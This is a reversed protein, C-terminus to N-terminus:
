LSAWIMFFGVTGVLVALGAYKLKIYRSTVAEDGMLDDFEEKTLAGSARQAEIDDIRASRGGSSLPNQPTFIGM